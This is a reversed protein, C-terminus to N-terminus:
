NGEGEQISIFLIYIITKLNIYLTFQLNNKFNFNYFVKLNNM